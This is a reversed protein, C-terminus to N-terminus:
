LVNHIYEHAFFLNFKKKEFEAEQNVRVVSISGSRVLKNKKERERKERERRQVYANTMRLPLM